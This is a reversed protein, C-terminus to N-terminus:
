VEDGAGIGEWSTRGWVGYDMGGQFLEGRVLGEGDGGVDLFHECGGLGNLVENRPELLRRPVLSNVRAELIV